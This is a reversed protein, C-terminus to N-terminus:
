ITFESGIASSDKISEEFNPPHRLNGTPKYSGDIDPDGIDTDNDWADCFRRATSQRMYNFTDKM